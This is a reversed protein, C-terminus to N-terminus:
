NQKNWVNKHNLSVSKMFGGEGTTATQTPQEEKEKKKRIAIRDDFKFAAWSGNAADTVLKEIWNMEHKPIAENIEALRLKIQTQSYGRNSKENKIECYTLFIDILGRTWGKKEFPYSSLFIEYPKKSETASKPTEVEYTKRPTNDPFVRSEKKESSKEKGKELNTKLALELGEVKSKLFEIKALASKEREKEEEKNKLEKKKEEQNHNPEPQERTIKPNPQQNADLINCDYVDSNCLRAYTTRNTVRTTIYGWKILNTLATRYPQRKLGMKEYDGILSEGIEVGKVPNGTRSVRRAIVSLLHNELPKPELNESQEGRNFKIFGQV